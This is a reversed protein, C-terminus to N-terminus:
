QGSKTLEPSPAPEPSSEKKGGGKCWPCWVVLTRHVWDSRWQVTVVTILVLGAITGVAYQDILSGVVLTAIYSGLVVFNLKVNRTVHHYTWLWHRKRQAAVVGDTSVERICFICLRSDHSLLLFLSVTFVPSSALSVRIFIPWWLSLLSTIATAISAWIGIAVSIHELRSAERRSGGGRSLTRM